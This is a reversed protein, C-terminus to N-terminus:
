WSKSIHNPKKQWSHGDIPCKFWASLSGTGTGVDAPSLDGNKEYDWLEAVREPYVLILSKALQEQRKKEKQAQEQTEAEAQQRQEKERLYDRFARNKSLLQRVRNKSINYLTGIDQYSFGQKYLEIM